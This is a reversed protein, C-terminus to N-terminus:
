LACFASDMRADIRCKSLTDEMKKLSGSLYLKEKARTVAVYLVRLEEGLSETLLIQQIAKKLITPAKTRLLPDVVDCGVGYNQHIAITSRADQRNFAKGLGAVFVIPFELGKSKHISMIRVTNEEEGITSAEGFDVEYKQLNEIYRVFNFLGTAPVRM